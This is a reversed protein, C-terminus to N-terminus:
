NKQIPKFVVSLLFKEDNGRKQVSAVDSLMEVVNDIIGSTIDTKQSMRGRIKMEIKTTLGKELFKRAQSVKIDLDHKGIFPSIRVIKLENQAKTKKKEEKKKKNQDYNYKGLDLIKVVPNPDDPKSVLKLDLGDEGAIARAEKFSVVGLNNGDKDILRFKDPLWDRTKKKRQEEQMVRLNMRKTSIIEDEM